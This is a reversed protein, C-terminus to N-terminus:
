EDSALRSSRIPRKQLSLYKGISGHHKNVEAKRAASFRHLAKINKM